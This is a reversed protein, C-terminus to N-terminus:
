LDVRGGRNKKLSEHTQKSIENDLENSKLTSNLDLKFKPNGEILHKLSKFSSSIHSNLISDDNIIEKLKRKVVDQDQWNESGHWLLASMRSIHLSANKSLYRTLDENSNSYNNQLQHSVIRQILVSLLYSEILNSQNFIKDYYEDWVKYKRSRADSPKKLMIALFSTGVEENPIIKEKSIEENEYQRPKRELYYGYLEFGKQIDHQIKENARLNRGSIKNQNNTTLVIKDVLSLDNTEYVRLLVKTEPQLSGNNMAIALSTSTQCGNVIQINEIKLIPNDPDQVPDVKDCVITIGNNLFWFLYGGDETSCTNLIDKNVGGRNGIYKRINLDFIYGNPDNNVLNSIESAKVTCIVGKLGKSQYKILSPNNTDYVIPINCNIKKNRKDQSNLINVIEDSGVLDFQFSGYTGNNFSDLITKREQNVEESAKASSGKCVYRVIFHINSSGYSSRINRVDKIKDKFKKNSLTEVDANKKLLIWELGNRIQIISNSSFNEENKVQSIHIFAEDNTEEITIADIQKDQGGDVVDNFDFSHISRDTFLSHSFVMFANDESIGLAKATKEIHDEVIQQRITM